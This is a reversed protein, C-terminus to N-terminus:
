RLPPTSKKSSCGAKCSDQQPSLSKQCLAEAGVFASMLTSTKAEVIYGRHYLFADDACAAQSGRCKVADDDCAKSGRCDSSHKNPAERVDVVGTANMCEAMQKEFTRKCRLECTEKDDAPRSLLQRRSSYPLRACSVTAIAVLMLLTVTPKM